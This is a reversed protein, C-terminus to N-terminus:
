QPPLPDPCRWPARPVASPVQRSAAAIDQTRPGVCRRSRGPDSRRSSRTSRYHWSRRSSSSPGAVPRKGLISPSLGAWNFSYRFGEQPLLRQFEEWRLAQPIAFHYQVVLSPPMKGIM